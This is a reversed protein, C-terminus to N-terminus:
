APVPVFQRYSYSCMEDCTFCRSYLQNDQFVFIKSGGGLKEKVVVKGQQLQLKQQDTLSSGEAAKFGGIGFRKMLADM